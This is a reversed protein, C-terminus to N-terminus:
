TVAGSLVSPRRARPEMEIMIFKKGPLPPGASKRRKKDQGRTGPEGKVMKLEMQCRVVGRNIMGLSPILCLQSELGYCFADGQEEDQTGDAVKKENQADKYASPSSGTINGAKIAEKKVTKEPRGGGRGIGSFGTVM